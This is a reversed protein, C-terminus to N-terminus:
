SRLKRASINIPLSRCRDRRNGGDSEISTAIEEVYALLVCQKRRDVLRRGRWIVRIRGSLILFDWLLSRNSEVINTVKHHIVNVTVIHYTPSMCKKHM